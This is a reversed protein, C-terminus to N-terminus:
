CVFKINKLLQYWVPQYIYKFINKSQCFHPYSLTVSFLISRGSGKQCQAHVCCMTNNTHYHATLLFMEILRGRGLCQPKCIAGDLGHLAVLCFSATRKNGRIRIPPRQTKGCDQQVLLSGRYVHQPSHNVGTLQPHPSPIRM